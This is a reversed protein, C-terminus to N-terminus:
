ELPATSSVLSTVTITSGSLEDRTAKNTR